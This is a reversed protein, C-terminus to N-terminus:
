QLGCGVRRVTEDASISSFYYSLELAIKIRRGNDQMDTDIDHKTPSLPGQLRTRYVLPAEVALEDSSRLGLRRPPKGGWLAGPRSRRSPIM